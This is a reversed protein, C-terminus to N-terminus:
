SCGGHHNGPRDQRPSQGKRRAGHDKHDSLLDDRFSLTFAVVIDCCETNHNAKRHHHQQINGQPLVRKASVTDFARTENTPFTSVEPSGINQNVDRSCTTVLSPISDSFTQYIAPLFPVLAKILPALTVQTYVVINLLLTIEEPHAEFLAALM